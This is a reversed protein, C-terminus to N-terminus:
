GSGDESLTKELLASVYDVEQFREEGTIRYGQREYWQLLDPYSKATDLRISRLSRRRAEAEAFRLLSRGYGRRQVRPDVCIRWVQLFGEPQRSALRIAGVIAGEATLKYVHGEKWDHRLSAPSERAGAYHFGMAANRAYAQHVLRLIEPLDKEEAPGIQPDM